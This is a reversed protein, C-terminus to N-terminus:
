KPAEPLWCDPKDAYTCIPAGAKGWWMDAQIRVEPTLPRSCGKASACDEWFPCFTMDKYCMM